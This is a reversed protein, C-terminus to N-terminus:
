VWLSVGFCRLRVTVRPLRNRRFRLFIATLRIM